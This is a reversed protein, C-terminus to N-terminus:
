GQKGCIYSFCWARGIVGIAVLIVGFLFLTEELVPFQSQWRATGFFYYGALLACFLWTTIFRNRLINM